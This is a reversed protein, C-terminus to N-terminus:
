MLVEEDDNVLEYVAKIITEGKKDTMIVSDVEVEMKQRKRRVLFLVTM